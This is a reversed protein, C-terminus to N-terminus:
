VESEREVNKALMEIIKRDKEKLPM